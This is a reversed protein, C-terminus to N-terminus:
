EKGCEKRLSAIRKKLGLKPDQGMALEFERLAQEKQGLSELAEGRLRHAQSTLCCYKLGFEFARDCLSLIREAVRKRLPFPEGDIAILAECFCVFASKREEPTLETEGTITCGKAKCEPCISEGCSDCDCLLKLPKADGCHGCEEPQNELYETMRPDEMPIFRPPTLGRLPQAKDHPGILGLGAADQRDVDMTWMGSNWAFPPYPNGLSDGWLTGLQKWIGSSKLAVMRGTKKFARLADEDPSKEAAEQWRKEWGISGVSGPPYCPEGRPYERRGARYLELAPYADVIDPDNQEVAQRYGRAMDVNTDIVLNQREEQGFDRMTGEDGPEPQYGTERLVKEIALREGGRNNRGEVIMQIAEQLVDNVAGLWAPKPPITIEKGCSPCQLALGAGAEDIVISQGCHDCHFTIDM